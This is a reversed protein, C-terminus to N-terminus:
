RFFLGFTKAMISSGDEDTVYVLPGGQADPNFRFSVVIVFEQGEFVEVPRALDILHYGREELIFDESLVEGSPECLEDDWSEFVKLVVHENRNAAILGVSKLM